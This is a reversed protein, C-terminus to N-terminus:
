VSIYDLASILLKCLLPDLYKNQHILYGDDDILEESKKNPDHLSILQKMLVENM